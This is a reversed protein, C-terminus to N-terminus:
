YHVVAVVEDGCLLLDHTLAMEGHSGLPLGM